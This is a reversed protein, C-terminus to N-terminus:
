PTTAPAPAAAPAPTAVPRNEAIRRAKARPREAAEAFRQRADPPLKALTAIIEDGAMLTAESMRTTQSRILARVAEADFPEARLLAVWRNRDESLADRVPRIRESLGRAADRFAVQDAPPLARIIQRLGFVTMPVVRDPVAAGRLWQGAFLGGVALNLGLSVVLVLRLWGPIRSPAPLGAETM